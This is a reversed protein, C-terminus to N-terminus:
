TGGAQTGQSWKPRTGIRPGLDARRKEGKDTKRCSGQLGLPSFRVRGGETTTKRNSKYTTSKKIPADTTTKRGSRGEKLANLSTKKRIKQGKKEKLKEQREHGGDKKGRFEKKSQNKEGTFLLRHRGIEEGKGGYNVKKQDTTPLLTPNLKRVMMEGLGLTPLLEKRGM